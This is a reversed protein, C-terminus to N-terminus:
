RRWGAILERARAKAEHLSPREGICRGMSATWIGWVIRPYGDSDDRGRILEVGSEPEVYRGDRQRKFRIVTATM